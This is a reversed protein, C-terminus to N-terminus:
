GEIEGDLWPARIWLHPDHYHDGEGEEFYVAGSSRSICAHYKVKKPEKYIRYDCNHWDWFPPTAIRWEDVSLIEVKGGNAFHQMVAIQEEINM